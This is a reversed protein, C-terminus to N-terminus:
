TAPWTAKPWPSWATPAPPAPQMPPTEASVDEALRARTEASADEAQEHTVERARDLATLVLAAEDPAHSTTEALSRRTITKRPSLSALLGETSRVTVTVSEPPAM